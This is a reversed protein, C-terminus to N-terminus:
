CNRFLDIRSLDDLLYSASVLIDANTVKDLVLDCLGGDVEIKINLENNDIYEKLQNIKNESSDIFSQGSKGPHVSMILVVSIKDLYPIIEKIDTEPNIAIGVKIGYSKILDLYKNFDKIEYHITINNVNTIALAEIYKTPNKVMLHVDNKKESLNVLEVLESVPLNKREVFKGDMVDFHVYDANSNNIQKIYNKYNGEKLFSVSVEKM